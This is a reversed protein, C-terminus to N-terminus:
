DETLLDWSVQVGTSSAVAYLDFGYGLYKEGFPVWTNAPLSLAKGISNADAASDGTPVMYFTVTRDSGSTNIIRSFSKIIYCQGDSTPGALVLGVSTPIAVVERSEPSFNERITDANGRGSSRGAM